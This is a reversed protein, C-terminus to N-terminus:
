QKMTELLELGAGSIAEAVGSRFISSRTEYSGNEYANMPPFYGEYGNTCCCPLVLPWGPAEKLDRGIDSFPEGPIGVLAIDGVSVESVRLAFDDPGHELELMREAEAVVTTLM